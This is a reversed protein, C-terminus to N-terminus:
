KPPEQSTNRTKAHRYLATLLSHPRWRCPNTTTFRYREQEGFAASCDDCSEAMLRAWPAPLDVHPDFEDVDYDEYLDSISLLKKEGNRFEIHLYPEDEYGWEWGNLRWDNEQPM